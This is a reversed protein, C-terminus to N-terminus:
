WYWALSLRSVVLASASSNMAAVLSQWRAPDVSWKAFCASGSASIDAAAPHSPFPHSNSNWTDYALLVLKCHVCAHRPVVARAPVTDSRLWSAGPQDPMLCARPICTLM